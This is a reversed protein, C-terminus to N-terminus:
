VGGIDEVLLLPQFPSGHSVIAGNTLAQLQGKRTQAGSVGSEVVQLYPGASANLVLSFVTSAQQVGGGTAIAIYLDGAGTSKTVTLRLSIRYRRTPDATYTVTAGTIDIWAGTTTITQNTGTPFSHGIYGRPMKVPDFSAPADTDYWLDYSAGPDDPGIYVEDQGPGGIIDQWTGGVKAKLVGM